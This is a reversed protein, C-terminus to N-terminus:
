IVGPELIRCAKHTDDNLYVKLGELKSCGEVHVFGLSRLDCICELLSVLNKCNSLDLIELAKLHGISPPLEKIAIESLNLTVLTKMGDKLDPFGKLNSCTGVNLTELSRLNSISEPLNVLNKSVSFDLNQLAKLHGISSPLEKIATGSLNVTELNEMSKTLDQFGKLNYCGEMSLTKLSRLNCISELFSMLNNCKTLDLSQLAKLHGISSQLEKITTERLDLVKLNEMNDKLDTFSKLKSHHRGLVRPDIKYKKLKFLLEHVTDM